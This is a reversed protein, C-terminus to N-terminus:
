GLLSLVYLLNARYSRLSAELGGFYTPICISGHQFGPLTDFGETIKLANLLASNNCNV